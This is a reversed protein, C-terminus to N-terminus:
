NILQNYRTKNTPIHNLQWIARAKGKEKLLLKIDLSTNKTGKQPELPLTTHTTAQQMVKTITEIALALDESNKLKIQLNINNTIEERYKEWNTKHNHLRPTNHRNIVSTSITTIIPTHDSSLEFTSVTETYALSIGKTIFFDLLDPIEAPYTPWYTPSGSSIFSYNNDKMLQALEKGKTTTLQSGWLLNKSNYDGGALFKQCLTNCFQEFHEKKHQTQSPL